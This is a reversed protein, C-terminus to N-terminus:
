VAEKVMGQMLGYGVAMLSIGAGIAMQVPLETLSVRILPDQTLYLFVVLLMLPIIRTSLLADAARAGARNRAVLVQQVRRTTDVLHALYAEGGAQSYGELLNALNALSTSPSREALRRLAEAPSKSRVEAAALFLEGSLPNPGEEDLSGATKELVDAISGGALLGSAIRGIAIPLHKDMERARGVIKNDLWAVPLYGALGGLILAPLGPLFTWLIITGAIGIAIVLLRFTAPRILLGAALLRYELSGPKLESLSRATELSYM